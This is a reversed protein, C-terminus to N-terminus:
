TTWQASESITGKLAHRRGARKAKIRWRHRRRVHPPRSATLAGAVGSTGHPRLALAGGELAKTACRMSIEGMVSVTMLEAVRSTTSPRSRGKTMIPSRILGVPRLIRAASIAAPLKLRTSASASACTAAPAWMSSTLAPMGSASSGAIRALATCSTCDIVATGSIVANRRAVNHDIREDHRDAGDVLRAALDHMQQLAELGLQLHIGGAASGVHAKTERRALADAGGEQAHCDSGTEGGRDHI